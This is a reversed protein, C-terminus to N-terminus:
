SPVRRLIAGSAFGAGFAVDVELKGPRKGWEDVYGIPISAASSNGYNIVGDRYVQDQRLKLGEQVAAVIRLNAQHPIVFSIDKETIHEGNTKNYKAIVNRIDNIMTKVAVVFVKPGDMFLHPYNTTVPTSFSMTEPDELPTSLFEDLYLLNGFRGQTRTCTALIEGSEVPGIVTAGAGDGFLVCSKRDTWDTVISMAEVGVALGYTEKGTLVYDAIIRNYIEEVAYIFGSCGASIDSASCYPTDLAEQVYSALCPFRMHTNVGVRIISIRSPDIGAKEIAIEAAKIAMSSLTDSKDMIRRTHIGTRQTIWEDSTDVMKELHENTLINPPLYRGVGLYGVKFTKLDSIM